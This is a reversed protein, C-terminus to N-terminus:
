QTVGPPCAAVAMTFSTNVGDIHRAVGPGSGTGLNISAGGLSFPQSGNLAHLTFGIKFTSGTVFGTGTIPRDGVGLDRGTVSFQNGGSPTLFLVFFNSAPALSLCVPGIPDAAAPPPAGVILVVLGFWALGRAVNM